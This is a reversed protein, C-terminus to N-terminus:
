RGEQRLLIAVRAGPVSAALLYHAREVLGESQALDVLNIIPDAGFCHGIRAINDTYLQRQSFGAQREKLTCVPLYINSHLLREIDDLELDLGQLMQANVQRSLEPSLDDRAPNAEHAQACARIALGPMSTDGQAILCSAAGDSFLAFVELRHAEDEIRGATVVLVRRQSGAAVLARAVAIGQLFTTCRGLTLGIPTVHALGCPELISALFHRQQEAAGPFALACVIVGDVSAPDCDAAELTQRLSSIALEALSRRTTRVTGWGWLHPDLRMGLGEARARWVPNDWSVQTEGLCYRPAVLMPISTNM